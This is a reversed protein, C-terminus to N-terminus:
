YNLLSLRVVAEAAAQVSDLFLHQFNQLDLLSM